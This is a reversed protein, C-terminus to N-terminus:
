RGCVPWPSSGRRTYTIAARLYQESVSARAPDGKGGANSWATMDFQFLGRYKGGGGIAHPDHRSECFAIAHLTPRLRSVMARQRHLRDLALRLRQNSRQLEKLPRTSAQKAYRTTSIHHGTRQAHIRALRVNRKAAKRHAAAHAVAATSAVPEQKPAPTSSNDPATAAIAVAPAVPVSLAAVTALTKKFQM